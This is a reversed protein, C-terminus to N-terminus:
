TAQKDPVFARCLSREALDLHQEEIVVSTSTGSTSIMQIQIGEDSLVRFMRQAVDVPSCPNAAAISVKGIQMDRVVERAGLTPLVKETLVDLARACDERHLTFSFDTTGDKTLNHVIAGVEVHAGALAGLIHGAIGPKSPMGLVAIKAQNRHVAIDYMAACEM